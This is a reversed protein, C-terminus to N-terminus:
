VTPIFSGPAWWRRRSSLHEAETTARGERVAVIFSLSLELGVGPEVGALSIPPRWAHGRVATPPDSEITKINHLTWCLILVHFSYLDHQIRLEQLLQVGGFLYPM